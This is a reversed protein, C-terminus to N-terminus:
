PRLNLMGAVDTDSTASLARRAAESRVRIDDDTMETWWTPGREGLGVKADDVRSRAARLEGEDGSSLAAKVARRADMLEDVLAQRVTDDLGPDTSRWRRGKILTHSDTTSRLSTADPGTM